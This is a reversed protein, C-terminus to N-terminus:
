KTKSKLGSKAQIKLAEHQAALMHIKVLELTMGQQAKLSAAVKKAMLYKEVAFPEFTLQVDIIPKVKLTKTYHIKNISPKDLNEMYDSFSIRIYRDKIDGHITHKINSFPYDPDILNMISVKDMITMSNFGSLDIRYNVKYEFRVDDNFNSKGKFETTYIRDILFVEEDIPMKFHYGEETVIRIESHNDVEYKVFAIKDSEVKFTFTLFLALVLSAFAAYKLYTSLKTEETEVPKVFENKM